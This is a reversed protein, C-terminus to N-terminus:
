LLLCGPKTGQLNVPLFFLYLELLMQLPRDSPCLELKYSRDRSLFCAMATCDPFTM